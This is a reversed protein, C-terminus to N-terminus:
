DGPPLRPSDARRMDGRFFPFSHYRYDTAKQIEASIVALKQTHIRRALGLYRKAHLRGCPVPDRAHLPSRAAVGQKECPTAMFDLVSDPTSGPSRSSRQFGPRPNHQGHPAAFLEEIRQTRETRPQPRATVSKFGRLCVNPMSSRSGFARM